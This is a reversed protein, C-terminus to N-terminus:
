SVTTAPGLRTIDHGREKLLVAAKARILVTHEYRDALMEAEVLEDSNLGVSQQKELLAEM